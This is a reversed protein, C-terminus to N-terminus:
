LCRKIPQLRPPEKGGPACRRKVVLVSPGPAGHVRLGHLGAALFTGVPSPFFAAQQPALRAVYDGLRVTVSVASRRQFAGTRNAVLIREGPAVLLCRPSSVEPFLEVPAIGDGGTSLCPAAALMHRGPEIAPGGGDRRAVKFREIPASMGVGRSRHSAVSSTSDSGSGCGGCILAGAILLGVLTV